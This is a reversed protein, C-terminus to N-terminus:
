IFFWYNEEMEVGLIKFEMDLLEDKEKKYCLWMLM